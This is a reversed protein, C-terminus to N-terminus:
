DDDMLLKLLPNEENQKAALNINAMKARSQPSLCLENCCRFFVRTYKEKTSMLSADHLLKPNENVAKEIKQMRDISISCESLVYTDLNGLIKSEKLESIIHRYIKKQAATLYALPKLKQTGGKLSAEVALRSEKEEASLHKSTAAASMAPRAM